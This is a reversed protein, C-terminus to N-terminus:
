NGTKHKKMKKIKGCPAWSDKTIPFYLLICEYIGLPALIDLLLYLMPMSWCFENRSPIIVNIM